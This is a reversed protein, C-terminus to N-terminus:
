SCSTNTKNPDVQKRQHNMFRVTLITPLGVLRHSSVCYRLEDSKDDSFNIQLHEKIVIRRRTAIIARVTVIVLCLTSLASFAETMCILRYFSNTPTMEISSYDGGFSNAALYDACYRVMENARLPEREKRTQVCDSTVKKM